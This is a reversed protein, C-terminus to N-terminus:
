AGESGLINRSGVLWGFQASADSYDSTEDGKGCEGLVLSIIFSAFYFSCFLLLQVGFHLPM